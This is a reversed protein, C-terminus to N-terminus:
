ILALASIIWFGIYDLPLGYFFSIFWAIILASVAGVQYPILENNTQLLKDSRLRILAQWLLYCLCFVAVMGGWAWVNLIFVPPLPYMWKYNFKPQYNVGLGLPNDSMLPLFHKWMTVRPDNGIVRNFTQLSVGYEKINKISAYQIPSDHITANIVPASAIPANKLEVEQMKEDTVGLIRGLIFYKQANEPILFFASVIFIVGLLSCIIVKAPKVKFHIGYFLTTFIAIIFMAIVFSRSQSWFIVSAIGIVLFLYLISRFYKRNVFLDAMLFSYFYSFAIITLLNMAGSNITFGQFRYGPGLLSLKESLSPFFMFPILFLNPLILAWSLVKYLKYNRSQIVTHYIAVFVGVGILLKCLSTVGVLNFELGYRIFSILTALLISVILAFLILYIRLELKGLTIKKFIFQGIFEIAFVFTAISFILDYRLPIFFGERYVRPWYVLSLTGVILLLCTIKRLTTDM